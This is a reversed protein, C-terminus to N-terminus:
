VLHIANATVIIYSAEPIQIAQNIGCRIAFLETKTLTINVAHYITKKVSNSHSHVHLISM